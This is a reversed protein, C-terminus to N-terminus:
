ANASEHSEIAKLKKARTNADKFDINMLKAYVDLAKEETDKDFVVYNLLTMFEEKEESCGAIINKYDDIENSKELLETTFLKEKQSLESELNEVIKKCQDTIVDEDDLRKDDKERILDLEKLTAEFEEFTGPANDSKIFELAGAKFSDQINKIQVKNLHQSVIKSLPVTQSPPLYLAQGFEM